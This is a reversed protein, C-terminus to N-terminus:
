TVCDLGPAKKLVVSSGLHLILSKDLTPLSFLQVLLRPVETEETTM